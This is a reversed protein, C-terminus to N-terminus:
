LTGQTKTWTTSTDLQPQLQVDMAWQEIWEVEVPNWYYGRDAAFLLKKLSSFYKGTPM